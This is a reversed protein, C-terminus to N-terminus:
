GKKSRRFTRSKAERAKDVLANQGLLATEWPDWFPIKIAPGLARLNGFNAELLSGALIQGLLATEWPDWFPIKIAPGLARLNGFNTEL